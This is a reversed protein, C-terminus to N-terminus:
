GVRLGELPGRRRDALNIGTAILVAGGIGIGTIILLGRLPLEHAVIVGIRDAAVSWVARGVVLGLPVGGAAAVVGVTVAQWRTVGTLQARRLGLASLIGSQRRREQTSASLTYAVLALGLLGFFGALLAPLSGLQGLNTVAPPRRSVFGPLGAAGRAATAAAADVGPGWKLRVQSIASSAHDTPPFHSRGALTIAAGDDFSLDGIPFSVRGVVRFSATAGAFTLAVQDGIGVGLRRMTARGLAVEDPAGPTRGALVTLIPLGRRSDLVFSPTTARNIAPFFTTTGSVQDVRPDAALTTLAQEYPGNVEGESREGFDFVADSGSGWLASHLPLHDLSAGFALAGVAATVLATTGVLPGINSAHQGIRTLARRAGLTAALPRRVAPRTAARVVAHRRLRQRTATALSLAAIVGLVSVVAILVPVDVFLSRDPEVRDALGIRAVPAALIGGLTAAGLGVVLSPAGLVVGFGTRMQRTLGFSTLTDLDAAVSRLLRRTLLVFTGLGSLAGILAVIWLGTAAVRLGDDVQHVQGWPSTGLVVGADLQPDGTAPNGTAIISSARAPDPVRLEVGPYNFIQARYHEGFAPTLYIVGRPVSFDVPGVLVGSVVVDISPGDPRPPDTGSFAQEVGGGTFSELTLHDGPGVALDHALQESLGIEDAVAPDPARGRLVVPIDIADTGMQRIVVSLIDLNPILDTGLPLVFYSEELSAGTAGTGAVLRSVLGAPDASLTQDVLDTVQVNAAYTRARLRSFASESRRAQLAAALSVTGALALVLAVLLLPIGRQRWQSRCWVFSGGTM